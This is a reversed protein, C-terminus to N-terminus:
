TTRLYKNIRNWCADFHLRIGLNMERGCIVCGKEEKSAEYLRERLTLPRPEVVQAMLQRRRM